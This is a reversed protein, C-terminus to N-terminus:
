WRGLGARRARAAVYLAWAVQPLLLLLPVIPKLMGPAAIFWLCALGGLAAFGWHLMAVARADM